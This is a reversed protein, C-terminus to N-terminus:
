YLFDDKYPSYDASADAISGPAFDASADAISSPDLM